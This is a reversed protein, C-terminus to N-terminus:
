VMLELMLTVLKAMNEEDLEQYRSVANKVIYCLQIRLDTM